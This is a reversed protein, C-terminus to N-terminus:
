DISRNHGLRNISDSIKLATQLAEFFKEIHQIRIGGEHKDSVNDVSARGREFGQAADLRKVFGPATASDEEAIVIQMQQGDGRACTLQVAAIGDAFNKLCRVAFFQELPQAM